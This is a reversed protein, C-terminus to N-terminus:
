QIFIMKGHVYRDPADYIYILIEEPDEGWFEESFCRAPINFYFHPNGGPEILRTQSYLKKMGHGDDACFEFEHYLPVAEEYAIGVLVNLSEGKKLRTKSPILFHYHVKGESM